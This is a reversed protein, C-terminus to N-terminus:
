RNQEPADGIQLAARVCRVLQKEDFFKPLYYAVGDKLARIRDVDNPAGTVLITPIAHGTDVLHSYLEIGTMAPMHVDVILCRTEVIKASSLFDAASAFTEVCYGLSRLLRDMSERFSQDDDVVSILSAEPM